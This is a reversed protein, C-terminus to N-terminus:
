KVEIDLFQGQEAQAQQIQSQRNYTNLLAIKEWYKELMLQTLQIRKNHHEEMRKKNNYYEQLREQQLIKDQNIPINNQLNTIQTM